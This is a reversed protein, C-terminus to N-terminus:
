EILMMKYLANSAFNRSLTTPRNLQQELSLSESISNDTILPPSSRHRSIRTCSVDNYNLRKMHLKRFPGVRVPSYLLLLHSSTQCKPNLFYWIHLSFLPFFPFRCNKRFNTMPLQSALGDKIGAGSCLPM